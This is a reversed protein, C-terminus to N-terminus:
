RTKGSVPWWGPNRGGSFRSKSEQMERRQFGYPTGCRRPRFASLDTGPGVNRGWWMSRARSANPRPAILCPM